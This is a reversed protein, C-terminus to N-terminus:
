LCFFLSGRYDAHEMVGLMYRHFLQSGVDGGVRGVDGARALVVHYMM